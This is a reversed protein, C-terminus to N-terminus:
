GHRLHFAWARTRVVSAPWRPLNGTEDKATIEVPLCVGGRRHLVLKRRLLTGTFVTLIPSLGVAVVVIWSPVWTLVSDMADSGAAGARSM